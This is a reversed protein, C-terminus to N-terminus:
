KHNWLSCSSHSLTKWSHGLSSEMSLSIQVLYSWGEERRKHSSSHITEEPFKMYKGSM